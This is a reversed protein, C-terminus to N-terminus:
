RLIKLASVLQLHHQQLSADDAAGILRDWLEKRVGPGDLQPFSFTNCNGTLFEQLSTSIVAPDGSKLVIVLDM